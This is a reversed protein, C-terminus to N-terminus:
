SAIGKEIMKSLTENETIEDKTLTRYLKGEVIMIIRDAFNKIIRFDHSVFIITRKEEQQKKVLGALRAAAADDLSESWEDLFLLEPKLIM